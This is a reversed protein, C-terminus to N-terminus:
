KHFDNYMDKYIDKNTKRYNDLQLIKKPGYYLENIFKHDNELCTDSPSDFNVCSPANGEIIDSSQGPTKATNKFGNFDDNNNTQAVINNSCQFHYVKGNIVISFDLKKNKIAKLIASYLDASKLENYGFKRKKLKVILGVENKKVVSSNFSYRKSQINYFYDDPNNTFNNLLFDPNNLLIGEFHKEFDTKFLNYHYSELENLENNKKVNKYLINIDLQKDNEDIEFRICDKTLEHSKIDLETEEKVTIKTGKFYKGHSVLYIRNPTIIDKSIVIDTKLINTEKLCYEPVCRINCNDINPVVPNPNISVYHGLFKYGKPAIPEWIWLTEGNDQKIKAVPNPSFGVPKKGNKVLIKLGKIGPQNYNKIHKDGKLPKEDKNMFYEKGNDKEQKEQLKLYKSYDKFLIVDGLSYYYNNEGQNGDKLTQNLSVIPKTKYICFTDNTWIPDPKYLEQELHNTSLYIFYLNSENVCKDRENNEFNEIHNSNLLNLHIPIKLNKYELMKNNNARQKIINKKLHYNRIIYYIILIIISIFILYLKIDCKNKM